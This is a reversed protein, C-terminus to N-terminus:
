TKKFGPSRGQGTVGGLEPLTLSGPKKKLREDRLHASKKNRNGMLDNECASCNKGNLYGAAYIRHPAM